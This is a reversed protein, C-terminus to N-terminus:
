LKFVHQEAAVLDLDGMIPLVGGKTMDNGSALNGECTWSPVVEVKKVETVRLVTLPLM